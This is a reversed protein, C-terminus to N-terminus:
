GSVEYRIHNPKPIRQKFLLKPGRRSVIPRSFRVPSRREQRAQEDEEKQRLRLINHIYGQYNRAAKPSPRGNRGKVIITFPLPNDKLMQMTEQYKLSQRNLTKAWTM